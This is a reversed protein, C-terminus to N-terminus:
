FADRELEDAQVWRAGIVDHAPVIKYFWGGVTGEIEKVWYEQRDSLLIVRDHLNFRQTSHDFDDM